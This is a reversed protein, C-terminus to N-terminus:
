TYRISRHEPLYFLPMLWEVVLLGRRTLILRDVEIQALGESALSRFLDGFLAELDVGFKNRFYAFNLTGLRLLLIVERRMREEVTPCLSRWLPLQGSEVQLLYPELGDANQYHMGQLYGFASEGLGLLDGGKWLFEETYVFRWRAQPHLAMYSSIVRYGVKELGDFTQAVFQRKDPWNPLDLQTGRRIAAYFNSNYTLEMQYVTVCDPEMAIVQDVTRQWSGPTEGPLGALLDVNVQDFGARRAMPLAARAPEASRARGSRRLVPDNLTQFGLSLRTVGMRRLVQLKEPTTSEPNCEVTFEEGGEWAFSDRLGGILRELQDASLFTPTGGGFYVCGIRRGRMAPLQSYIRAERLVADVYREVVEEGPKVHVRFYCYGCRQGCFPLHVYLGASRATPSCALSDRYADAAQPTWQSYPPYNSIFHNGVETAVPLQMTSM